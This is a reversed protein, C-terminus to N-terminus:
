RQAVELAEQEKLFTIAEEITPFNPINLNLFINNAKGGIAIIPKLMAIAIGLETAKGESLTGTNVYMLVDAAVVDHLDHNAQQVLYEDYAMGDPAEEPVDLWRSNVKYGEDRLKEAVVKVQERDKWPGATYFTIM